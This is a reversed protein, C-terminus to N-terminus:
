SLEAFRMFAIGLLLGAILGGYAGWILWRWHKELPATQQPENAHIRAYDPM